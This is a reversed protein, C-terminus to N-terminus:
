ARLDLSRGISIATAAEVRDAARTYLALSTGQTPIAGSFNVGGPVQGAILRGNVPATATDIGAAARTDTAGSVSPHALNAPSATAAAKNALPPTAAGAPRSMGYARAAHFPIPGTVQM